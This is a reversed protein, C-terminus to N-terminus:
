YSRTTSFWQGKFRLAPASLDDSKVLTGKEECDCEFTTGDDAQTRTVLKDVSKECKDCDYKFIPM